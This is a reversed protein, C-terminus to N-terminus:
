EWRFWSPWVGASSRDSQGTKSSVTKKLESASVWDGTTADLVASSVPDSRLEALSADLERRFALRLLTILTDLRAVVNDDNM